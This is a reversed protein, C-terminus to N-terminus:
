PQRALLVGAGYGSETPRRSGRDAEALSWERGCGEQHFRSVVEWQGPEPGGQASGRKSPDSAKGPEGNGLAATGLRGLAGWNRCTGPDPATIFAM